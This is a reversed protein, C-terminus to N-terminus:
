AAPDYAPGLPILREIDELTPTVDLDAARANERVRDPSRTGALAATVGPQYLIWAIAVQAVTAGLWKAIPRLAEVVAYTRDVKDPALLPHRWGNASFVEWAMFVEERTRDTLVASSLSDYVTVAIGLEGCRAFLQRNDLYDILNLGDQIVDVRRQAHCREVDDISYNSLGIARVLGEDALEAMAGWTEELPVGTDDPWHLFYLDIQECCLRRLSDRCAAHVQDRRFGSGGGSIAAGPAVKTSVLFEGDIRALTAGIVSENQTHLYNESTDLWNIGSALAAEIVAGAQSVDPEEGAFPGLEVGGLGVPSISVGSEGVQRLEIRDV